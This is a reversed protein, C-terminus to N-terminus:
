GGGPPGPTALLVVRYDGVKEYGLAQYARIAPQNEDGTFLVSTTVGETRADLLSAAVAARGHGRGRHQRPTFVGGVQVLEPLTANFGSISVPEGEAEVVWLLGEEVGRAAQDLAKATLAPGPTENLTEVMYDVKWPAVWAVDDATARRGRLAGTALADPVRLAALDLRYLGEPEDLQLDGETLGYRELARHVQPGPGVLGVLDRAPDARHADLLADLAPGEAQLILMGNWYHTAVGLLAGAAFAGLYRGQVREPGDTFGSLRQNSLLFVSSEARPRLFADYAAQDGDNLRRVELDPADNM